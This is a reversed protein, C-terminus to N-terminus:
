RGSFDQEMKFRTELEADEMNAYVMDDQNNSKAKIFSFHDGRVESLNRYLGIEEAMNLHM